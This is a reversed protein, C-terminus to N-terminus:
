EGQSLRPQGSKDPDRTLTVTYIGGGKSGRRGDFSVRGTVGPILKGDHTLGHKQAAELILAQSLDPM